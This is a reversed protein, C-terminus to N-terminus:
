EAAPQSRPQRAIERRARSLAAARTFTSVDEGAAAAGTGILEREGTTLLIPLRVSRREGPPLPPRGMRTAM